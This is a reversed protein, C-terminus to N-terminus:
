LCFVAAEARVDCKEDLLINILKEVANKQKLKRIKDPTIKFLM